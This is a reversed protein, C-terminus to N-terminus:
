KEGSLMRKRLEDLDTANRSGSGRKKMEERLTTMMEDIQGPTKNSEPQDKLKRLGELVDDMGRKDDPTMPRRPTRQAVSQPVRSTPTVSVSRGAATAKAARVRAMYAAVSEGARKTVTSRGPVARAQVARNPLSNKPTSLSPGGVTGDDLLSVKQAVDVREETLVQGNRLKVLGDLVEEVVFRGLVDKQRVWHEGKGTERIYALSADPDEANVCTGIVKFSATERTGPGPNFTGPTRRNTQQVVSTGKQPPPNVISAYRQAEQVLPTQTNAPATNTKGIQDELREIVDKAGLLDQAEMDREIGHSVSFWILVAALMGVIVSTIRLTQIM